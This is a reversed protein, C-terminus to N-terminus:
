VHYKVKSMFVFCTIIKASNQYHLFADWNGKNTTKTSPLVQSLISLVISKLSLRFEEGWETWFSLIGFFYVMFYIRRSKSKLQCKVEVSNNFWKSEIVHKLAKSVQSRLSPVQLPEKNTETPLEAWLKLTPSDTAGFGTRKKVLKELELVDRGLEPKIAQNCRQACSPM